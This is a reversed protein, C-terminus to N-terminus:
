SARGDEVPSAPKLQLAGRAHASILQLQRGIESFRDQIIRQADAQSLPKDHNAAQLLDAAMEIARTHVAGLRLSKAQPVHRLLDDIAEPTLRNEGRAYAWIRDQDVWEAGVYPRLYRVDPAGAFRRLAELWNAQPHAKPDALDLLPIGVHAKDFAALVSSAIVDMLIRDIMHLEAVGLQVESQRSWWYEPTPLLNEGCCPCPVKHRLVARALRYLAGEGVMFVLGVLSQAVPEAFLAQALRRLEEQTVEGSDVLRQAQRFSSTHGKAFNRVNRFTSDGMVKRMVAKASARGTVVRVLAEVSPEQAKGPSLRLEKRYPGLERVLTVPWLPM